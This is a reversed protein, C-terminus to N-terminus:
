RMAMTTMRTRPAARRPVQGAARPPSSFVKMAASCGLDSATLQSAGMPAHHVADDWVLEAPEERPLPQLAMAMPLIGQAATDTKWRRLMRALVIISIICIVVLVALAVVMGVTANIM